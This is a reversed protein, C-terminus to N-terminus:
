KGAENIMKALEEKGENLLTERKKIDLKRLQVYTQLALTAQYSDGYRITYGKPAPESIAKLLKAEDENTFGMAKIMAEDKILGGLVSLSYERWDFVPRFDGKSEPFLKNLQNLTTQYIDVVDCGKEKAIQRIEDNWKLLAGNQAEYRKNSHTIHTLLKVQTGTAKAADLMAILNPKLKDLPVKKQIDEYGYYLFLLTPKKDIVNMKFAAIPDKGAGKITFKKVNIDRIGALRMYINVFRDLTVPSRESVNSDTYYIVTDGKKLEAAYAPLTFGTACVIVLLIIISNIKM